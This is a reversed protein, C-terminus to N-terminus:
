PATVQRATDDLVAAAVEGVAPAQAALV